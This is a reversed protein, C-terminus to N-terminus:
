RVSRRRRRHGGVGMAGKPLRCAVSALTLGSWVVHALSASCVCPHTAANATAKTVRCTASTSMRHSPTCRKALANRETSCGDTLWATRCSRSSAATSRMQAAAAQAKSSLWGRSSHVRCKCDGSWVSVSGGLLLRRQPQVLPKGNALSIDMWTESSNRGFQYMLYFAANDSNVTPHGLVTSNHVTFNDDTGTCCM